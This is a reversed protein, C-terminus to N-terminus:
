RFAVTVANAAISDASVELSLSGRGALTIPLPGINVQDLGAYQDHAAFGLVPITIGGITATVTGAQRLGTGYILLYVQQNGFLEIPTTTFSGAANAAFADSNTRTGDAAIRLVQIAGVGSGSANMTFLGPSVPALTLSASGAGGNARQLNLTAAGSSLDTPVLLNIQNPSVFFQPATSAKGRSDRITATFGETLSPQPGASAAVTTGSFNAGYVSLISGPSVAASKLSAANVTGAITIAGTTAAPAATYRCVVQNDLFLNNSWIFNANGFYATNQTYAPQNTVQAATYLKAASWRSDDFGPQAWNEDLRFHQARCTKPDNGVCPPQLSCTSSDPSATSSTKVCSENAVPAIYVATCKWSSNTVTGDTFRAIFGGDGLRFNPDELGAGLYGEWDVLKVAYTLPKKAKFRVANSNFPTFALPDRAVIKGNVYLEFYNDGFIYGTVEEGDPDIVITQLKSEFNPNAGTGTCDNYIETPDPGEAPKAPVQWTTGNAATVIGCEAPRIAPGTACATTFKGCAFATPATGTTFTGTDHVPEPATQGLLSVALLLLFYWAQM